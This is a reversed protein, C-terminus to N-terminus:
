QIKVLPGGFASLPGDFRYVGNPLQIYLNTNADYQATMTPTQATGTGWGIANYWYNGLALQNYFADALDIGPAQYGDPPTVPPTGTYANYNFCSYTNNNYQVGCVKNLSNVQIHFMFGNQFVQFAGVYQIPASAACPLPQSTTFFWTFPCNPAVDISVSQSVENISRAAVLRYIVRPDTGPVTVTTAGSAQVSITEAITGDPRVREIRAVDADTQWTLTVNENAKVSTPNATFSLIHVNDPTVTPTPSPTRTSTLTLTHTPTITRTFTATPRPTNSATFTATPTFTASPTFTLTPTHSATPTASPADPTITALPSPTLTPLLAVTPLAESSGSCASLLCIMLLLSFGILRQM